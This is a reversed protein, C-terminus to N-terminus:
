VVYHDAWEFPRKSAYVNGFQRTSFETVSLVFCFETSYKNTTRSYTALHIEITTILKYSHFTIWTKKDLACLLLKIWMSHISLSPKTHIRITPGIM